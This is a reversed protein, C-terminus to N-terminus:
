PVPGSSRTWVQNQNRFRLEGGNDSRFELNMSQQTGDEVDTSQVSFLMGSGTIESRVRDIIQVSARNHPGTVVIVFAPSLELFANAYRPDNTTWVGDLDHPLMNSRKCGMSPLLLVMALFVRLKM